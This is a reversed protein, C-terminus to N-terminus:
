FYFQLLSASALLIKKKKKVLDSSSPPSSSTHHLSLPLYDDSMQDTILKHSPLLM